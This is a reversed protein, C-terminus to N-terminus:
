GGSGTSSGDQAITLVAHAETLVRVVSAPLEALADQPALSQTYGRAALVRAVEPPVGTMDPPQEEVVTTSPAEAVIPATSTTTPDAPTGSRELLIGLPTIGIVAVLVGAAVSTGSYAM